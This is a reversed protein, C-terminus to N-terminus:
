YFNSVLELFPASCHDPYKRKYNNTIQAYNGVKSLQQETDARYCEPRTVQSLSELLHPSAFQDDLLHYPQTNFLEVPEPTNPPYDLIKNEFGENNKWKYGLYYM